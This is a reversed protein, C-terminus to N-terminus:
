KRNGSKFYSIRPRWKRDLSSTMAATSSHTLSLSGPKKLEPSIASSVTPGLADFFFLDIEGLFLNKISEGEYLPKHRDETAARRQKHTQPKVHQTQKDKNTGGREKKHHRPLATSRLQPM